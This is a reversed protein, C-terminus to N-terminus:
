AQPERLGYENLLQHIRQRSVGLAQAMETPSKHKSLLHELQKKRRANFKQMAEKFDSKV